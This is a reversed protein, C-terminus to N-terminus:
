NFLDIVFPRVLMTARARHSVQNKEEMSLEAMTKGLKPLLFIPDYGFGHSGREQFIIEGPCIGETFHMIGSPTALAIVCRFRATWPYVKNELHNLLYVRRDYDTAGPKPCYRASRLGPLGDLVDVELGSDDAICVMNCAKAYTAAKIAANETYTQGDEKVIKNISVDVPTILEIQLDSLLSKFELYKGQNNSALLLRNDM